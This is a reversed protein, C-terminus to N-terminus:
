GPHMIICSYILDHVSLVWASFWPSTELNCRRLFSFAILAECIGFLINQTWYLMVDKKWLSFFLLFYLIILQATVCIWSCWFILLTNHFSSWPDWTSDLANSLRFVAATAPFIRNRLVGQLLAAWKQFTRSHIDEACSNLLPEVHTGAQMVPATVRQVCWDVAAQLLTDSWSSNYLSQAKTQPEEIWLWCSNLISGM